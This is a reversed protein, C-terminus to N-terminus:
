AEPMEQLADQYREKAKAVFDEPNIKVGNVVREVMDNIYIIKEKNVTTAIWLISNGTFNQYSFKLNRIDNVFQQIEEEQKGMKRLAKIGSIGKYPNKEELYPIVQEKTLEQIIHGESNVAYVVRKPELNYANFAVYFNGEKAKNEGNNVNLGDGFDVKKRYDNKKTAMPPLGYQARINNVGEKYKTYQNNISNLPYYRFNYTAIEVLAAVDEESGIDQKIPTLDYYDEMENTDPNLRKEKPLNLKTGFVVGMCVFKNNGIQNLIDFVKNPTEVRREVGENLHMQENLFAQSATHPKEVREILSRMKAIENELSNKVLM